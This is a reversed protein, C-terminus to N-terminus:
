NKKGRQIVVLNPHLPLVDQFSKVFEKGMRECREREEAALM